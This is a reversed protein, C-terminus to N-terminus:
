RYRRPVLSRARSLSPYKYYIRKLLYAIMADIGGKKRAIGFMLRKRLEELEKLSYEQLNYPVEDSELWFDDAIYGNAVADNYVTTGPLLWLITSGISSCPKIRDILEITEDITSKDEGPSGVMLYATPLIGYEHVLSFAKEIDRRTQQKNINKLIKNSGSEVGFAITVCGSAKMAKLLKENIMKVHSCCAWKLNWRNRIIGECIAIARNSNVPFNDDYFYISAIGHEDVLWAIEELVNEPSRYRWKRGWFRVSACYSCNFVCGRSSIVAATPSPLHPFGEYESFSFNEFGAYYPLPISDINQVAPRMASYFVGGGKNPLALGAVDKLDKGKEMADLFDVLTEEGEGTVVASAYTKKFIHEPFLTAHPGGLILRANPAAEKLGDCLHWVMGRDITWCTVGILDPSAQHVKRKMQTVSHLGGDILVVDHGAQHAVAGLYATGPPPFDPRQHRATPNSILVVRM